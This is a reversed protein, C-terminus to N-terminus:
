AKKNWSTCFGESKVLKQAFITCTGVKGGEKSGVEKYFSCNNCFQKDFAVGMREVKVAADKIDAKNHVYKVAKAVDSAPDVLPQSLPGTGTAAAKDGGAAPRARRREEAFVSTPLLKALAGVALAGSVKSFFLRRSQQM